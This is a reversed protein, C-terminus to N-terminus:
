QPASGAGTVGQNTASYGGAKQFPAEQSQLAMQTAQQAEAQTTGGFGALKSGILQTTDVTPANSGPAAATLGQGQAAVDLAQKENATSFTGDPNAGTRAHQVLEAAMNPTFNAIGANQAYGQLQAQNAKNTLLPEAKAPDLYYALLHGFDVGQAALAQRTAPDANMAVQYGNAIRRNFQAASVGGAVLQGIEQKSFFSDPLGYQQAINTYQQALQTYQQETMKQTNNPDANYKDLGVFAQKYEPTARVANTLTTPDSIGQKFVMNFVKPTLSDLGWAALENQLTGYATVQKTSDIQVPTTGGGPATVTATKHTVGSGTFTWEKPDVGGWGKSAISPMFSKVNRSFASATAPNRFATPDFGQAIWDSFLKRSQTTGLADVMAKVAGENNNTYGSTDVTKGGYQKALAPSVGHDKM